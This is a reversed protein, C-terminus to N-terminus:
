DVHESEEPEEETYSEGFMTVFGMTRDTRVDVIYRRLTNGMADTTEFIWGANQSPLTPLDSAHISVQLRPEYVMQGTQPDEVSDIRVVRGRVEYHEGAPGYIDVPVGQHKLIMKNDSALIEHWNM